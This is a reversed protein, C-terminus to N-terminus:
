IISNKLYSLKQLICVERKIDSESIKAGNFAKSWIKLAKEFYQDITFYFETEM